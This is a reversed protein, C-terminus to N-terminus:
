NYVSMEGDIYAAGVANCYFVSDLDIVAQSYWERGNRRAVAALM